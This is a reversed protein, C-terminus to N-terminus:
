TYEMEIAREAAYLNVTLHDNFVDLLEDECYEYNIKFSECLEIIFPYIGHEFYAWCSHGGSSNFSSKEYLPTYENIYSINEAISKFIAEDSQYVYKNPKPYFISEGPIHYDIWIKINHSGVFSKMAKSEPESFPEPGRYFGSGFISLFDTMPNLVVSREFLIKTPNTLIDILESFSHPIRIYRLPHVFVDEWNYDFNRNIDVGCLLTRGFPCNNVRGNKRTFKEVGDPNVMPIFYMETKNVANRIRNTLSENVSSVTYNEVISKISYIVTHFGPRENGHMGGTYFVGIESENNEVNDSIKVLWIDRGNHTKGLSTYNFINSYDQQLEDLLETLEDYSYYHVDKEICKNEILKDLKINTKSLSTTSTLIILIVFLTGLINLNKRM